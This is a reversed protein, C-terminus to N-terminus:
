RIAQPLVLRIGLFDSGFSPGSGHRDSSRCYGAHGDWGGGRVVRRSGRLKLLRSKDIWAGGDEPAGNYTGHWDDEVWEWVNGNMDYLGWANPQKQGVPHPKNESNALYWAISDLCDESNGCYWKTETGARAAYEWEAETPLRYNKGSQKNLKAIFEQVDNWSVTEVPYEDGKQFSSPNSGMVAKWQGQTVETKQMYFANKFTVKHQPLEGEWKMTDSEPAGMLFEGASIKVFEMKVDIDTTTPGKVIKGSQVVDKVEDRGMGGESTKEIKIKDNLLDAKKEEVQGRAEDGSRAEVEEDRTPEPSRKSEAEQQESSIAKPLVLRFGLNYGENSPDYFSRLSSSCYRALSGWSGGRFVRDAGRPEDIWSNGVKPADTYSNHWDDEVWEYVNGSMDYLGWDNHQKTGVPHTKGEANTKYWAISDLCSENDGCYWKTETGARAAYEWEAETPLRYIKGSQKNLKAVFEQVDNWSVSDVPYNDGAGSRSPNSGMVAKWQGQTVETKQMYFANKFTTDELRGM